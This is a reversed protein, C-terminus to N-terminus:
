CRKPKSSGESEFCRRWKDRWRLISEKALGPELPSYPVRPEELVDLGRTGISSLLDDVDEASNVDQTILENGEDDIVTTKGKEPM